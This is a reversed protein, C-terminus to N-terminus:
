HTKQLAQVEIEVDLGFALNCSVVSRTPFGNPFYSRYEQNFDSFHKMDSLWVTVKVVADLDSGCALLTGQIGAMINRTQTKIDGFVPEGTESMSVQGSLFLFGGAEVAKSFPFPLDSPYRKIESIPM